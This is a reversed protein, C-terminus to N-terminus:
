PTSRVVPGSAPGAKSVERWKLLRLVVDAPTHGDWKPASEFTHIGTDNLETWLSDPLYYTIMGTPLGMGAVFWGQLRTGDDHYLSRWSIDPRQRM